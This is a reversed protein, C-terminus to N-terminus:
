TDHWHFTKQMIKWGGDRKLLSFIESNWWKDEALRGAWGQVELNVLAVTEVVEIRAFRPSLAPAPGNEDVWAFLQEVTGSYERGMCYGAMTADPHFAPRMMDGNGARAGAIYREFVRTIQVHEALYQGEADDESPFGAPDPDVGTGTTRVAILGLGGLAAALSSGLIWRRGKSEAPTEEAPKRMREARWADVEQAFAFVTDGKGHKHRHVPLREAAEWRRVTRESRELYAAIQKWSELRESPGAM